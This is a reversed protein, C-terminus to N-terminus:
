VTPVCVLRAGLSWGSYSSVYDVHWDFLGATAGNACSGGLFTVTMASNSYNQYFYDGVPLASDGNTECALFLFDCNESYGFASIYNNARAFNFGTSSYPAASIDDQYGHDAIYAIGQNANYCNMGDQWTWVNGWMNEEGRYTVSHKGDNAGGNGSNNGLSSTAGTSLVGAYSSTNSVNGQGLVEQSNFSAYEVLFLLQTASATLVDGIQWKAGRAVAMSRAIARTFTHTHNAADQGTSPKANAISALRNGLSANDTIYAGSANQSCAEYASLLVYPIEVGNRIFCPHVKFGEYQAHAVQYKAARIMKGTGFPNASQTIPTVQYYFKPQYVMVQANTGVAYTKDDVTVAQTLKGTETFADDGYYALITGDDAVICRKRGGYMEFDDFDEGATLGVANDTRTFTKNALDVTVGLILVDKPTQKCRNVKENENLNVAGSDSYPFWRYYYTEGEVLGTDVFGSTAYQNRTQYDVVLVGDKVSTPYSGVKRVVKTGAWRSIEMGDVVTDDPDTGRIVLSSNDAGLNVMVSKMNTPAVGGAGTEITIWEESDANYFQLEDNYYRMGHTGAESYLEKGLHETIDDLDLADLAAQATDAKEVANEVDNELKTMDAALTSNGRIVSKAHTVPYFRNGEQDKLYKAETM